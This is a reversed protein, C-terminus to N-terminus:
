FPFGLCLFAFDSAWPREALVWIQRKEARPQPETLGGRLPESPSGLTVPTEWDCGEEDVPSGNQEKGVPRSQLILHDPTDTCSTLPVGRRPHLLPITTPTPPFAATGETQEPFGLRKGSSGALPEWAVAGRASGSRPQGAQSCQGDAGGPEVLGQRQTTQAPALPAAIRAM